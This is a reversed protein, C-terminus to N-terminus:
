FRALKYYTKVHDTERYGSAGEVPAAAEATATGALENAYDIDDAGVAMDVIGQEALEAAAASAEAAVEAFEEQEESPNQIEDAM